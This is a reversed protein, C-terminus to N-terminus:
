WGKFGPKALIVPQLAHKHTCSFSIESCSVLSVVSLMIVREEVLVVGHWTLGSSCDPSYVKWTCLTLALAGLSFKGKQPAM